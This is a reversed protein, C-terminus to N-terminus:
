LFSNTLLPTICLQGEGLAWQCWKFDEQELMPTKLKKEVEESCPIFSIGQKQLSQFESLLIQDNSYITPPQRAVASWPVNLHPQSSQTSHPPFNSSSTIASISSSASTLHQQDQAQSEKRKNRTALATPVINESTTQKMDAVDVNTMQLKDIEAAQKVAREHYMLILFVMFAVSCTLWVNCLKWKLPIGM